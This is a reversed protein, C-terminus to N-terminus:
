GADSLRNARRQALATRYSADIGARLVDILDPVEDVALQFTGVCLNARWLSLVVVGAEEHWSVRLARSPSRADLYIEGTRPLPTAPLGAAQVMPDM